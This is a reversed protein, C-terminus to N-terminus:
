DTLVIKRATQRSPSITNVFYIGRPLRIGKLDSMQWSFPTIGAVQAVRRGSADFVEVKVETGEPGSFYLNGKTLGELPGLMPRIDTLESIGGTTVKGRFAALEIDDLYWGDLVQTATDAYLRFRMQFEETGCFRTLDFHEEQWADMSGSWHKLPKWEADASEKVEFIGWDRGKQLSGRHWFSFEAFVYESLDLKPSRFYSSGSDPYTSFPSDTMSYSRSHSYSNTFGWDGTAYWGECNQDDFDENILLERDGVPLIVTHVYEHGAATLILDFAIASDVPAATLVKVQIDTQILSSQQPGISPISASSTLLEIRSDEGELEVNIGGTEDRLNMNYIGLVLNLTEGPSINGNGNEDVWGAKKLELYPGAAKATAILLPFNEAVHEKVAYEQWFEDGVEVTAPFIRSKVETDGYMWDTADGNTRYGLGDPTVGYLNQRTCAEGWNYIAVSDECAGSRYGWPPIFLDAHSHFNIAAVFEHEKCLNMVSQTEPESGPASGRYTQSQPNPSSGQDDLGWMYPYNRNIDVGRNPYGAPNRNKRHMGGGAPFTSENYLYGDPNVIPIMWIQRNNVLYTVLPDTTYCECLWRAWEVCINVTIPERAHHLGTYLVEPEDEEVDVNDSIKVAYVYNGDWTLDDFDDNPLVMRESIIDPYKEHLSDLIAYAETCTYYDGFPSTGSMRSEYYTEMDDIVVTYPIGQETLKDLESETVVIEAEFGPKLNVVDFDGLDHVTIGQNLPVKVQYWKASM